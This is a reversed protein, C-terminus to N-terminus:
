LRRELKELLDKEGKEEAPKIHPLAKTRGGGRKVHGYELLHALRYGDKTAYVTYTVSEANEGTKKMRWSKAYKGTSGKPANKKIEDKVEGAEEKVIDKVADSTDDAYSILEKMVADTLNDTKM